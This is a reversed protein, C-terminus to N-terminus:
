RVPGVGVQPNTSLGLEEGQLVEECIDGEGVPQTKQMRERLVCTHRERARKESPSRQKFDSKGTSQISRSPQAEEYLSVDRYRGMRCLVQYLAAVWDISALHVSRM